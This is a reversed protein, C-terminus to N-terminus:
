TKANRKHNRCNEKASFNRGTFANVLQKYRASTEMELYTNM